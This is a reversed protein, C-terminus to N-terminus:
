EEVDHASSAPERRVLDYLAIAGATAANLSGIHGRMPLSVLVQCRNRINATLGSGESGVVLVAPTPIDTAFLPAAAEGEDLGVIWRGAQELKDIARGLNPVLAVELHEVAGASANVVAPTVSVSRDSPIVVGAAGSADAARLLTGFNQPDQLHDLILVTGDRDIVDELDAYPFEPAEFAVGQHNIDRLLDDLMPRPVSEVLVERERALAAIDDIRTDPRMGEAIWLRTGARRGARLSELVANRGYLLDGKIRFQAM